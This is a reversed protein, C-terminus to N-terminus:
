FADSLIFLSLDTFVVILLPCIRVQDKEAYFATKEKAYAM